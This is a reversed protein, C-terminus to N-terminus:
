RTPDAFDASRKEAWDLYRQARAIWHERAGRVVGDKLHWASIKARLLGRATQYFAVLTEPVADRAHERYASLAAEGIKPAGACACELALYGVEDAADVIRLDANFELCDIFLPRPAFCVHEPRLDGHGEVVRGAQVRAHLLATDRAVFAALRAAVKDVREACLGFEGDRLAVRHAEIDRVFRAVYQAGSLPAPASRLYFACLAAMCPEIDRPAATGTAIAFDLMSERPLRRMKVLWEVASGCGQLALGHATAALAVVGVYVGPALRRNLRVEELADRRRAELTSFDLFDYRVPKKLKYVYADTLFVVSMHTEIVEVRSPLEPYSAPRRLHDTKDRLTAPPLPASDARAPRRM